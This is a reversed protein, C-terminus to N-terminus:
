FRFSAQAAFDIEDENAGAALDVQVGYVKIGLGVTALSTDVDSMNSRYGIRITSMDFVNLEAGIGLYQTESDFGLSQSKNLDMDVAVAVWKMAHSIGIRAQPKIRIENDLSTQYKQGILNKIAVGTSWGNGYSKAAGVDVDFASHSKKNLDTEFDATSIYTAYDFSTAQIYKPTVGVAIDHGAFSYQRAISLGFETTSLGRGRFRSAFQTSDFSETSLLSADDAEKIIRDLETLDSDAIDVVGGGLIKSSLSFTMNLKEHPIGVVAAAMFEQQVSKNALDPIRTRMVNAWGGINVLSENVNNNVYIANNFDHLVTDYSAEAGIRQYNALSDMVNQKDFYRFGLVPAHLVLAEDRENVALLAPNLFGANANSASSVGTGGLAFSRPEIPSFPLASVQASFLALVSMLGGLQLTIRAM